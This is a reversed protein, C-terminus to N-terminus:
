SSFVLFKPRLSLTRCFIWLVCRFKENAIFLIMQRFNGCSYAAFNQIEHLVTVDTRSVLASLVLTHRSWLLACPLRLNPWRFINCRLGSSSSAAKLRSGVTSLPACFSQTSYRAFYLVTVHVLVLLRLPFWSLKCFICNAIQHISLLLLVFIFRM